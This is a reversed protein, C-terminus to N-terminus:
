TEFNQVFPTITVKLSYSLFLFSSIFSSFNGAVLGNHQAADKGGSTRAELFVDAEDILVIARWTTAYRQFTRLNM